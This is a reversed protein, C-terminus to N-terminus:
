VDFEGNFIRSYGPLTWTLDDNDVDSPSADIIFTWDPNNLANSELIFQINKIDIGEYGIGYGEKSAVTDFKLSIRFSDTFAKIITELYDVDDLFSMYEDYGDQGLYKPQKVDEGTLQKYSLAFSFQKSVGEIKKVTLWITWKFNVSDFKTTCKEITTDGLTIEFTEGDIAKVDDKYEEYLERLGSVLSARIQKLVSVKYLEKRSYLYAIEDDRIQKAAPTPEDGDLEAYRYPRAYVAVAEAEYDKDIQYFQEKCLKDYENCANFFADRTNAIKERMSAYRAEETTTKVSVETKSIVSYQKLREELAIRSAEERATMAENKERELRRQESRNASFEELLKQHETEDTIYKEKEELAYGEEIVINQYEIFISTTTMNVTLAPVIDSHGMYILITKYADYETLTGYITILTNKKQENNQKALNNYLTEITAKCTKLSDVIASINVSNDKIVATSHYEAGSSYEDIYEVAKLYGNSTTNSSSSFFVSSTVSNDYISSLTSSQVFVGNIYEALNSRADSRANEFSSGVGEMKLDGCYFPFLILLLLLAVCITRKKIRTVTM